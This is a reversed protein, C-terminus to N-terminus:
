NAKWNNDKFERISIRQKFVKFSQLLISLFADCKAKWFRIPRHQFVHRYHLIKPRVEKKTLFALKYFYRFNYEPPLVYLHMDSKWLLERLTVQDRKFGAISYYKSWDKCFQEIKNNWKYLIVGGNFQSFAKPLSVRWSQIGELRRHAHSLAIDFRDLLDFMETIDSVVISDADLYLTREYPTYALYEVKSRRHPNKILIVEDFIESKRALKENEKDCCISVGVKGKCNHLVSKASNISGVVYYAKGTAIYLVGKMRKKM